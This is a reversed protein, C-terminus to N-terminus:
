KQDKFGGGEAEKKEPIEKQALRNINQFRHDRVQQSKKEAFFIDCNKDAKAPNIGKFRQQLTIIRDVAQREQQM